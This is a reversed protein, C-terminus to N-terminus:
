RSGERPGIGSALAGTLRLQRNGPGGELGDEKRFMAIANRM